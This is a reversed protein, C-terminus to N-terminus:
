FYAVFQVCNKFVALCIALLHKFIYEIDKNTLYIFIFVVKLIQTVGAPFTTISLRPVVSAPSSVSGWDASTPVYDPITVMYILTFTELVALFLAELSRPVYSCSEM